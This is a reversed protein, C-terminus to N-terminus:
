QIVEVQGTQPNWRHTATGTSTQAQPNYGTAEQFSIGRGTQFIPQWREDALAKPKILHAKMYGEHFKDAQMGMSAAMDKLSNKIDQTTAPAQQGTAYTYARGIDGAATKQRIENLVQETPAAGTRAKYIQGLIDTYDIPNLQGGKKDIEDIRNYAIIAADRQEEARALSKDGRLNSVSQRAQQELRDQENNAAQNQANPNRGAFPKAGTPLPAYGTINGQADYQPIVYQQNAKANEAAIEAKTKQNALSEQYDARSMGQPIGVNNAGAVMSQSSLHPYTTDWHDLVGRGSAMQPGNQPSGQGSDTMQYGQNGRFLSLPNPINPSLSQDLPQNGQTDQIPNPQGTTGYQRNFLFQQQKAQQQRLANELAQQRSQLAQQGINNITQNFQNMQEQELKQKAFPDGWPQFQLTM